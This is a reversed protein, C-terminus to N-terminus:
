QRQAQARWYKWGYLFMEYLASNWLFSNRWYFDWFCWIVAEHHSSLCGPGAQGGVCRIKLAQFHVSPWEWRVKVSRLCMQSSGHCAQTNRLILLTVTDLHQSHTASFVSSVASYGVHKLPWYMTFFHEADILYLILIVEACM